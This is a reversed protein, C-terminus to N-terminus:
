CTIYEGNIQTEGALEGLISRECTSDLFRLSASLVVSWKVYFYTSSFGKCLHNM